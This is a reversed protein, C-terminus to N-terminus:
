PKVGVMAQAEILTLDFTGSGALRGDKVPHVVFPREPFPCYGARRWLVATPTEAAIYEVQAGAAELERLM